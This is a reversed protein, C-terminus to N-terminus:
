KVLLSVFLNISNVPLAALLNKRKRSRTKSMLNTYWGCRLQHQYHGNLQSDNWLKNLLVIFWQRGKWTNCCGWCCCWCGSQRRAQRFTGTVVACFQYLSVWFADLQRISDSQVSIRSFIQGVTYIVLQLDRQKSINGVVVNIQQDKTNQFLFM